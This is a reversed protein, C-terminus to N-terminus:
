TNRMVEVIMALVTLVLAMRERNKPGFEITAGILISAVILGAVIAAPWALVTDFKPDKGSAGWEFAVRSVEFTFFPIIGALLLNGLKAGLTHEEKERMMLKIIFPDKNM